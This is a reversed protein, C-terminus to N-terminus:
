TSWRSREQEATRDAQTATVGGADVTLTNGGPQAVVDIAGDSREVELEDGTAPRVEREHDGAGVACTEHQTAWRHTMHQGGGVVHGALVPDDGGDTAGAHGHRRRQPQAGVDLHVTRREVHHAEDVAHHEVADLLGLLQRDLQAPLRALVEDVHQGIQVGDVDVRGAEAVEGLAGAVDFTLHLSPRGLPLVRLGALQAAISSTAAVSRSWM